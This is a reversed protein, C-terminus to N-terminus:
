IRYGDRRISAATDALDRTQYWIGAAAVIIV